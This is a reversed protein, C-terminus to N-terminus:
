TEKRRLAAQQWQPSLCWRQRKGQAEGGGEKRWLLKLCCCAHPISIELQSAEEEESWTLKWQIDEETQHGRPIAVNPSPRPPVSAKGEERWTERPQHDSYDAELSGEGTMTMNIRREERWLIPIVRKDCMHSRETAENNERWWLSSIYLWVPKAKERWVHRVGKWFTEENNIIYQAKEAQCQQKERYYYCIVNPTKEPSPWKEKRMPMENPLTRGGQREPNSPLSLRKEGWGGRERKKQCLGAM